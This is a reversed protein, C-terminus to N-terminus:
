EGGGAARRADSLAQEVGRALCSALVVKYDIGALRAMAKADQIHEKSVTVVTNRAEQQEM